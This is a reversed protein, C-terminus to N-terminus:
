DGPSEAKTEKNENNAKVTKAEGIILDRERIKVARKKHLISMAVAKNKFEVFAISYACPYEM